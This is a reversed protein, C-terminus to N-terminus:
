SADTEQTECAEGVVSRVVDPSAAEDESALLEDYVLGAVQLLTRPILREKGSNALQQVILQVGEEGFPATRSGQYGSPRFYCFRELLFELAEEHSMEPLAIAPRVGTLTRLEPTLLSVASNEIRSTAALVVSLYTPNSSFVSRLNALIAERNRPQASNIRQFEDILLIVRKRAKGFAHFLATLVDSAAMDDEIRTNIGTANRLDRLHPKGGLLWEIALERQAADGLKSARLARRLNAMASVDSVSLSALRSPEVLTPVIRRYVDIFRKPQEPMEAYVVLGSPLERSLLLMLHFLAHTKGAGLNAWM